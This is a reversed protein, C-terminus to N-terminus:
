ESKKSVFAVAICEPGVHTGIIGGAPYLAYQSLHYKEVTERMFEEGMERNVTYAFYVPFEPDLDAKELEKCLRKKGSHLGRTKALVKLVTDKLVIVPKISLANGLIALSAPIRGGKRLYTLTNLVGCVTMRDRVEELADVIETRSKGKDRLCVAYETLMRQTIIAQRSDVISIEQYGSMKRAIEAAQVTGSLGSSLTIVIVEDGDQKAKLFIELYLQPSPQSTVPLKESTELREFFKIFDEEKEQPCIGDEFTITLPVIEVNMSKAQALTIDSASDTVIKIM